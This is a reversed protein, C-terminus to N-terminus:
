LIAAPQNQPQLGEDARVSWGTDSASRSHVIIADIRCEDIVAACLFNIEDAVDLPMMDDRSAKTASVLRLIQYGQRKLIVVEGM